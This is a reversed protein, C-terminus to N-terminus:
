STRKRVVYEGKQCKKKILFFCFFERSWARQEITESPFHMSYKRINVFYRLYSCVTTLEGVGKM